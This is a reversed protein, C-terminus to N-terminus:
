RRGAGALRDQDAMLEPVRRARPTEALARAFRWIMAALVAAICVLALGLLAGRQMDKSAYVSHVVALPWSAYALWHVAKWALRGLHARLLSTIIIAIMLDFAVAGLGLWLPEYASVFPIVSAAVSINVFTDLVATAIHVALFAISLLSLYRHLGLVAFRPMGPLRGQRNVILGIIVVLSMLVLSVVGTARSTYWMALTSHLTGPSFINMM